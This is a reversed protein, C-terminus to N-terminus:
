LHLHGPIRVPRAMAEIATQMGGDSFREIGEHCVLCGKENASTSVSATAAFGVLFAIVLTRRM